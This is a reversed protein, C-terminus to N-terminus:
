VSGRLIGTNKLILVCCPKTRKLLSKSILTRSNSSFHSQHPFLLKRCIGSCSKIDDAEQTEVMDAVLVVAMAEEVEQAEEM